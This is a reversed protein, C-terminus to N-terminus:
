RGPSGNLDTSRAWSKSSSWTSALSHPDQIVLSYGQGDTEPVWSDDYTFRLIAAKTPEPLQLLISEGGNNLKGEYEGAIRAEGGYSSRFSSINRVVVIYEAPALMIEPFTFRIGRSFRVGTLDLMQTGVNKLEIFEYDSGKIPNYMIETIRLGQLLALQNQLQGDQQLTETIAVDLELGFLVDDADDDSSQHM